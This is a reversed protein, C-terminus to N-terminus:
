RRSPKVQESLDSCEQLPSPERRRLGSLSLMGRINQGSRTRSLHVVGEGRLLLARMLLSLIAKEVPYRVMLECRIRTLRMERGTRSITETRTLTHTDSLKHHSALLTIKFCFMM